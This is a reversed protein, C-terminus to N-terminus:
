LCGSRLLQCGSIYKIINMPGGELMLSIGHHSRLLAATVGTVSCSCVLVFGPVHWQITLGYFQFSDCLAWVWSKGKGYEWLTPGEASAQLLTAPPSCLWPFVNPHLCFGNKICWVSYCSVCYVCLMPCTDLKPIIGGGAEFSSCKNKQSHSLMSVDSIKAFSIARYVRILMSLATLHLSFISLCMTKIAGHVQCM